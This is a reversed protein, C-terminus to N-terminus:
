LHAPRLDVCLCVGQCVWFKIITEKRHSNRYSRLEESDRRLRIPTPPPPHFVSAM